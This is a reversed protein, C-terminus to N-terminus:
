QHKLNFMCLALSHSLDRLLPSFFHLCHYLFLFPDGFMRDEMFAVLFSAFNDFDVKGSSQFNVCFKVAIWAANILYVKVASEQYSFLNQSMKIHRIEM